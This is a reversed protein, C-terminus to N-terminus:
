PVGGVNDTLADPRSPPVVVTVRPRRGPLRQVTVLGLRELAVLGRAAARRSVGHLEMASLSFDVQRSRKLGVRFWLIVAVHLARGPAGLATSLWDMPIPGKLFLQGRPVSPVPLRSVQRTSQAQGQERLRQLFDPRSM